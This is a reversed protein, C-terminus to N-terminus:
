QRKLLLDLFSRVCLLAALGVVRAVANGPFCPILLTLFLSPQNYLGRVYADAIM